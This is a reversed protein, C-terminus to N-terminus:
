CQGQAMGGNEIENSSTRSALARITTENRNITKGFRKNVGYNISELRRINKIAWITSFSIKNNETIPNYNRLRHCCTELLNEFM